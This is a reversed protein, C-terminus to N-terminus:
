HEACGSALFVAPRISFSVSTEYSRYPILNLTFPTHLRNLRIRKMSTRTRTSTRSFLFNTFFSSSDTDLVLVLVVVLVIRSPRPRRRLEYETVALPAESFHCQIEDLKMRPKLPCLGSSLLCITFVPPHLVRVTRQTLNCFIPTLNTKTKGISWYEMVGVSWFYTSCLLTM